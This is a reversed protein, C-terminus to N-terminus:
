PLGELLKQVRAIERAIGLSVDDAGSEVDIQRYQRIMADERRELERRADHVTGGHWGLYKCASELASM